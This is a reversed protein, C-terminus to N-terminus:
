RDRIRAWRRSLIRPRQVTGDRAVPAGTAPFDLRRLSDVLILARRSPDAAVHGPRRQRTARMMADTVRGGADLTACLVAGRALPEAFSFPGYTVLNGLSYAVLADARWEAARLVHPGHGIVLGAGGDVAARAFAVPNGRDAGLYRETSDRVRQARVGEAGNHVTVVVRAYRGAARRVHRRVADLDRADPQAFTSFGLVAVTDGTSTVAPTALTDAGAVRVGAAALHRQTDAFGELGADRAHNNAVNGVVTAHPAVARLARAASVPQRLAFCSTSRPGCKAPAAGDGIAGEVNLLVVDADAVLPRLPALLSDPAPLAAPQTGYRVRHRVAWATDLNTGLTVDGGACVRVGPDRPAPLRVRQAAVGAPATLIVSVIVVIRLV